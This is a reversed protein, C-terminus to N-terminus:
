FRRREVSYSSMMQDSRDVGGMSDNYINVVLSVLKDKGLRMRVDKKDNWQMCMTDYNLNYATAKEGTKLKKSMFDKPLRYWNNVFLCRGEVLVKECLSMVINTAQYQYTNGEEVLTDDGTYITSNWVYSSSAEALVFRKLGFRGRKARIFQKWSLSGKWLLFAEDVSISEELTLLSQWREVLYKHIPEIKASRNYSESLTSIDVFHVYKELLM